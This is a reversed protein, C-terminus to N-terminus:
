VFINISSPIISIEYPANGILEGDTEAFIKQSSEIRVSKTRLGRVGKISMIKGNYLKKINIIIKIKPMNEYITIDLFGDNVVAEPTQQMGGGSYKGNGISISLFNGQLIEDNVFIKLNWPKYEILSKLLSVLYASKTRRGREKMINTAKVVVSDFCLGAVNIFYGCKSRDDIYYNIKGVDQRVSKANIIRDIEIKYDTTFGYYRAWDNGTGMLILGIYIDTTPVVVQKFIGNITENLTGDGGIVVFNRFGEFIKQNVISEAHGVGTTFEFQYDVVKEKLLGEIVPWERNACQNGANPNILFFYKNKDKQTLTM